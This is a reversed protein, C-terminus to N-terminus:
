CGNSGKAFDAHIHGPGSGGRAPADHGGARDAEGPLFGAARGVEVLRDFAYREQGNEALRTRFVSLSSPHPPVFDLPLQLAVKWRLDFCLRAIAEEDSVEEFYQLLLIGSM